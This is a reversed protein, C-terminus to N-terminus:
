TALVTNNHQYPLLLFRGAQKSKRGPETETKLNQYTRSAATHRNGIVKFQERISQM